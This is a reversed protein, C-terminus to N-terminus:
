SKPAILLKLSRYLVDCYSGSSNEVVSNGEGDLLQIYPGTNLADTDTSWGISQGRKRSINTM